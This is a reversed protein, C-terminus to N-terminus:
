HAPTLQLEEYIQGYIIIDKFISYPFLNFGSRESHVEQSGSLFYNNSVIGALNILILLQKAQNGFNPLSSTITGPVVFREKLMSNDEVASGFLFNTLLM